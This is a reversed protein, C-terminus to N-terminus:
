SLYTWSNGQNDSSYIGGGDTRGVLRGSRHQIIVPLYGGDQMNIQSFGGALQAASDLAMWLPALVTFGIVYVHLKVNSM